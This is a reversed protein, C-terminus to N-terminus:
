SAEFIRYIRLQSAQSKQSWEFSSCSRLLLRRSYFLMFNSNDSNLHSSRSSHSLRLFSSLMLSYLYITEMTQNSPETTSSNVQPMFRGGTVLPYILLNTFYASYKLFPLWLFNFSYQSDHGWTSLSHSLSSRYPHSDSSSSINMTLLCLLERVEIASEKYFIDYFISGFVTDLM